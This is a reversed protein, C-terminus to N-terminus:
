GLCLVLLCIHSPSTAPPAPTPKSTGTDTGGSPAPTATQSPAPAPHSPVTVPASASPATAPLQQAATHAATHMTQTTLPTRSVPVADPRTDPSSTPTGPTASGHRPLGTAPSQTPSPHASRQTDPLAPLAPPEPAQGDSGGMSAVDPAAAAEAREASHRDMSAFTLGGGVLAFATAVVARRQNKKWRARQRRRAARGYPAGPGGPAETWSEDDTGGEFAAGDAPRGDYRMDPIDPANFDWGRATGKAATAARAPTPRGGTTVPAIDPAYAGCGPCVLAGNLHRRCSSCYDM